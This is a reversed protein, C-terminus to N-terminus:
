REPRVKIDFHLVEERRGLGEYLAVAPADDRDAQVFITWAGHRAAIPKLAEILATAIGQRRHAEAVALDYIYVESRAREFKPLVYAALGGVVRGAREAVLAVFQESGLLRALWADDPRAAAYTQADDFAAGFMDLLAHMAGLDRAGLHRITHGM